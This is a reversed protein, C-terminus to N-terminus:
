LSSLNKETREGNRQKETNFRNDGDGGDGGDREGGDGGSVATLQMGFDRTRTISSSAAIRSESRIVSSYSPYSNKPAAVPWSPSASASRSAGSRTSSSTLIGPISPMSTRSRSRLM